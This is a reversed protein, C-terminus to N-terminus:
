QAQQNGAIQQLSDRLAQLEKQQQDLQAQQKEILAQLAKVDTKQGAAFAPSAVALGLATALAFYMPHRKM